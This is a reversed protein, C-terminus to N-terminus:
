SGYTGYAHVAMACTGCGSRNYYVPAGSQGGITDNQYFVRQVQTVRVLDTGRWQTLPKDGPYGNIITPLGTLSASTWIYGYWGTTNGISCNLKIAGYDYRDDGNVTWATVSALWRATCSGYPSSTGNRGPFVLYSGTPYFSGGGGPHVCHGATVVTNANILWGTCRGASFTILVTARAPYTTTPNVRVRTDQGIVSEQGLPAAVAKKALLAARQSSTERNAGINALSDLAAEGANGGGPWSPSSTRLVEATPISRGDSVVGLNPGTASAATLQASAGRDGDGTGTTGIRTGQLTVQSGDGAGGPKSGLLTVQGDGGGTTGIKTGQLTVQSNGGDGSGSTGLRTGAHAMGAAVTSLVLALVMPVKMPKSWGRKPQRRRFGAHDRQMPPPAVPGTRSGSCDGPVRGAVVTNRQRTGGLLGRSRTAAFHAVEPPLSNQGAAPSRRMM